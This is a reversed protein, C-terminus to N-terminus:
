RVSEGDLHYIALHRGDPGRIEQIGFTGEVAVPRISFEATQGPRMEVLICDYLAAGPGFCCEQNDRVLVFQKIGRQQATPLIYGRIRIRQGALAKIEESLMERRFPEDLRMEFRIDDFTKDYPRDGVRALAKTKAGPALKPRQPATPAAAVLSRAPASPAGAAMPDATARAPESGCGSALLPVVAVVILLPWPVSIARSHHM